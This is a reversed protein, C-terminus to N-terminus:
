DRPEVFLLGSFQTGDRLVAEIEFNALRDYEQVLQIAEDLLGPKTVMFGLKGPKNVVEKATYGSKETYARNVSLITRKEIDFIMMVNPNSDFARVFKEESARLESEIQLREMELGVRGAITVLADLAFDGDGFPSRRLVSFVGLSRGDRAILSVGAYGRIGEDALIKDKPFQASLDGSYICPKTRLVIDCPTGELSYSLNDRLEGDWFLAETTITNDVNPDFAGISVIDANLIHATQRAIEDLFEQGYLRSSYKALMELVGRSKMKDTIDLHTGAAALPAGNQDREVIRGRDLIWRWQGSKTRLRTIAEYYSTAGEAYDDWAKRTADFDEPHILAQWSETRLRFEGSEYGFMRAWQDSYHCEDTQLNWEWIGVKAGEIALELRRNTDQLELEVKRRRVLEANLRESQRSNDLALGLIRGISLLLSLEEPTHNPTQRYFLTVVGINKHIATLPASLAAVFGETEAIKIEACCNDPTKSDFACSEVRANKLARGALSADLSLKACRTQSERSIRECQLLELCEEGKNLVFACCADPEFHTGLVDSVNALTQLIDSSSFIYETISTLVGTPDTRSAM